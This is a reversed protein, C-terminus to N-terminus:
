RSRIATKKECAVLAQKSYDFALALEGVKAYGDALAEFLTPPITYNEISYALQLAQQLYHLSASAAQMTAPAALSYRRHIEALVQLIDIQGLVDTQAALLVAEAKSLAAQPQGLELLVKALNRRANLIMVSQKLAEARQEVTEFIKLAVAYHQRAMEVEGYYLLTIAYTRSDSIDAMLTLGEQLLEHAIEYHGLERQTYATDALALGLMGPWGCRRALQLARQYWALANHHDHLSAFGVGVNSAAVIARRIQGSRQAQSYALTAQQIAQVYDNSQLAVTALFEAMVCAAAPHLEEGPAHLRALWSPAVGAGERWVALRAQRALGVQTRVADAQLDAMKELAANSQLMDGQDYTIAALLWHADACGVQNGLESFGQLALQAFNSSAALDGVLWKIEGRLLQLRHRLLKSHPMAQLALEAEAALALARECDRQRLAWALAILGASDTAQAELQALDEDLAFFEM